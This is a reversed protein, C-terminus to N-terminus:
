ADYSYRALFDYRSIGKDVTEIMEKEWSVKHRTKSPSKYIISACAELYDAFPQVGVFHTLQTLFTEPDAILDEHSVVILEEPKLHKRIERLAECNEFYGLMATEISIKERISITSINDFPNRVVHIVKLNGGICNKLQRLLNPNNYLRSTTVSAKSDGIVQLRQFKGQWQNKVRYSYYSGDMARKRRQIKTQKKSRMILTRYLQKQDFGAILYKLSDTEDALIMNPHADLLAGIISHGSRGHGIFICFTNVTDLDDTNILNAFKTRIFYGAVNLIQYIRGKKISRRFNRYRDTQKLKKFTTEM